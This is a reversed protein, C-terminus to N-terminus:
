VDALETVDIGRDVGAMRITRAVAPRAGALALTVGEHITQRAFILCRLGASSIYELEHLSIVLRRVAVAAAQEISRQFEPATLADLEGTLRLTAVDGTVTLASAFSM